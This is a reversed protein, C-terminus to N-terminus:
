QMARNQNNITSLNLRSIFYSAYIFIVPTVLDRQRLMTGINGSTMAIISGIFFLFSLLLVNERFNFDQHCFSSVAGFCALVFLLVFIIKVPYYTLLVFSMNMTFIPEMLLHYWANFFYAIIQLYNYGLPDPGFILLKYTCGGILFINNQYQAAAVFLSRAKEAILSLNLISFVALLPVGIFLLKRKSVINLVFYIILILLFAWFFMGKLFIILFLIPTILFLFAINKKRIFLIALYISLYFSFVYLPDKLKMTSYYFSTPNFLFLAAAIYGVRRNFLMQTIKFLILATILSLLISLMNIYSPLYGYAAYIVSYLYTILGIQYEGIDLVRLNQAAKIVDVLVYGWGPYKKLASLQSIEGRITKSIVLANSSYCEGDNFFPARLVQPDYYKYLDAQIFLSLVVHLLLAICILAYVKKDINFLRLICCFVISIALTIFINNILFIIPFM